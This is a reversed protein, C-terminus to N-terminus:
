LFATPINVYKMKSKMLIQGLFSGSPTKVALYEGAKPYNDKRRITPFLGHDLKKYDHSFKIYEQPM